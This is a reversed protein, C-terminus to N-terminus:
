HGGFTKTTIVDDYTLKGPKEPEPEWPVGDRFAILRNLAQDKLGSAGNDLEDVHLLLGTEEGPKEVAVYYGKNGYPRSEARLEPFYANVRQAIETARFHSVRFAMFGGIRIRLRQWRTPRVLHAEELAQILEAETWESITRPPLTFYEWLSAPRIDIM